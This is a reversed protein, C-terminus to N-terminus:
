VCAPQGPTKARAACERDGTPKYLHVSRPRLGSCHSWETSPAPNVTVAGPSHPWFGCVDQGKANKTAWEEVVIKMFM